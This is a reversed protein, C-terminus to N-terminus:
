VRHGGVMSSHNGPSIEDDLSYLAHIDVLKARVLATGVEGLLSKRGALLFSRFASQSFAMAFFSSPSSPRAFYLNLFRVTAGTNPVTFDIRPNQRKENSPTYPM